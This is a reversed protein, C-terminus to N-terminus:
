ERWEVDAHQGAIDSAAIAPLHRFVLMQGAFYQGLVNLTIVQCVAGVNLPQSM